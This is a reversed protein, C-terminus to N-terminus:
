SGTLIWVAGIILGGLGCWLLRHLWGFPPKAQRCALRAEQLLAEETVGDAAADERVLFFAQDFLGQDPGRVVIVQRTVGKVM